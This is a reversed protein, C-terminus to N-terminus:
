VDNLNNAMQQYVICLKLRNYARSNQIYIGPGIYTYANYTLCLHPWASTFVSVSILYKVTKKIKTETVEGRTTYNLTAKLIM